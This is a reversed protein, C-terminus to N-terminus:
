IDVSKPASLELRKGKLARVFLCVSLCVGSFARSVGAGRSVHIVLFCPCATTDVHLGVVAVAAAASPVSNYVCTYIIITIPLKRVVPGIFLM